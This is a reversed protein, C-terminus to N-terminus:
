FIAVISKIVVEYFREAGMPTVSILGIIRVTCEIVNLSSYIKVRSNFIIKKIVFFHVVPKKNNTVPKINGIVMIVIGGNIVFDIFSKIAV